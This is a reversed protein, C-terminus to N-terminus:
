TAHKQLWNNYAVAVAQHEPAPPFGGPPDQNPIIPVVSNIWEVIDAAPTTAQFYNFDGLAEIILRHRLADEGILAPDLQNPARTRFLETTSLIAAEMAEGPNINLNFTRAWHDGVLAVPRQLSLACVIESLTGAGGDLCIAADCMSAELYNRQHDLNSTILFGRGQEKATPPEAQRDVGIWLSEPNNNAGLLARNKVPEEAPGTGGTLTIDHNAAISHGLQEALELLKEMYDNDVAPEPNPKNSGFVAIIRKSRVV